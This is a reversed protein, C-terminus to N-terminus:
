FGGVFSFQPSRSAFQQQRFQPAPVPCQGSLGQSFPRAFQVNRVGSGVLGTGFPQFRSTNLLGQGVFPRPAPFPQAFQASPVFPRLTPSISSLPTQTPFTAAPSFPAFQQPPAPFGPLLGPLFQSALGGALGGGAVGLGAQILGPAAELAIQGLLRGTRGIGKINSKINRQLALAPAFFKKTAGKLKRKLKDFFGM